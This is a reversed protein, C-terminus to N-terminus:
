KWLLAWVKMGQKARVRYKKRIEKVDM